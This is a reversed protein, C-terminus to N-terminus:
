NIDKSDDKLVKFSFYWTGFIVSITILLPIGYFEIGLFRGTEVMLMLPVIVMGALMGLLYKYM